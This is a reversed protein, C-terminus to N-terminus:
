NIIIAVATAHLMRTCGILSLTLMGHNHVFMLFAVSVRHLLRKLHPVEKLVQTVAIM